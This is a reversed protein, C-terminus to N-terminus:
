EKSEKKGDRRISQARVHKGLVADNPISRTIIAPVVTDTYIGTLVPGWEPYQELLQEETLHDYSSTTYEGWETIVHYMPRNGDFWGSRLIRISFGEDNGTPVLTWAVSSSGMELEVNYVRTSQTGDQHNTKETAKM